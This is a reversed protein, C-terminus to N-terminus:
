QALLKKERKLDALLKREEKTKPEVLEGQEGGFFRV